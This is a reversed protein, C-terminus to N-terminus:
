DTSFFDTIERLCANGVKHDIKAQCLHVNAGQQRLFSEMELAKSFGVIKDETGHAIFYKLQSISRDLTAPHIAPLYGSLLAIKNFAQPYLTSLVLAIVAGQSFGVLNIKRQAYGAFRGIIRLIMQQLQIGIQSFAAFKDRDGANPDAWGFKNEGTQLLGRPYITLADPPVIRQFVSMSKENGSWGHILVFPDSNSGKEPTKIRFVFPAEFINYFSDTM